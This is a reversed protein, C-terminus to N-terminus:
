QSYDVSRKDVIEIDVVDNPLLNKPLRGHQIESLINKYEKSSDKHFKEHLLIGNKYICIQESKGEKNERYAFPHPELIKEQESNILNIPKQSIYSNSEFEIILPTVDESQNNPSITNENNQSTTPLPPPPPPPPSPPSSQSPSSPHFNDRDSSSSYSSSNDDHDDSDDDRMPITMNPHAFFDELADNLNGGNRGLFFVAVHRTQQSIACFDAILSESM